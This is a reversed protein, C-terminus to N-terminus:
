KVFKGYPRYHSLEEIVEDLENYNKEIPEDILSMLYDFLIEGIGEMIFGSLNINDESELIIIILKGTSIEYISTSCNEIEKLHEITIKIEEKENESLLNGIIEEDEIKLIRSINEIENEYMDKNKELFEDKTIEIANFKEIIYKSVDEIKYNSKINM